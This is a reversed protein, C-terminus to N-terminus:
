VSFARPGIGISKCDICRRNNRGGHHLMDGVHSLLRTLRFPGPLSSSTNLSLKRIGSRVASHTSVVVLDNAGGVRGLRHLLSLNGKSPLGVSLLVYSCACSSLGVLKAHCGPTMRMVCHRGRLAGHLVRRFSLSSRVVLVGVPDLVRPWSIM